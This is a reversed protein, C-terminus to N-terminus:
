KKSSFQFILNLHHSFGLKTHAVHATEVKISKHKFGFGFSVSPELTSVGCRLQFKESYQYDLGLKLNPKYTANKEVESVLNIKSNLLYKLGFRVTPNLREDKIEKIKSSFPNFVMFSTHIKSSNKAYVSFEFTQSQFEGYNKISYLHYNFGAGFSIKPNLAHSVNVGMMQDKLVNNGFSLFKFGYGMKKFPVVLCFNNQNLDSIFFRNNIAFGVTTSKELATLAINNAASFANQSFLGIGGLGNAASGIAPYYSQANLKFILLFM